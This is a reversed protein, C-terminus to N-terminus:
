SMWSAAKLTAETELDPLCILDSLTDAVLHVGSPPVTTPTLHSLKQRSPQSKDIPMLLWVLSAEGREGDEM